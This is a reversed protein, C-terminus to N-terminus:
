RSNLCRATIIPQNRFEELFNSLSGSANKYAIRSMKLVYYMRCTFSTDGM